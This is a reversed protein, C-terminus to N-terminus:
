VAVASHEQSLYTCSYLNSDNSVFDGVDTRKLTTKLSIYLNEVVKAIPMKIYEPDGISLTINSGKAHEYYQQLVKSPLMYTKVSDPRYMNAKHGIWFLSRAFLSRGLKKFANELHKEASKYSAKSVKLTVEDILSDGTIEGSLLDFEDPEIAVATGQELAELYRKKRDESRFPAISIWDMLDQNSLGKAERDAFVHGLIWVDIDLLNTAVNNLVFNAWKVYLYTDKAIENPELIFEDSWRTSRLIKSQHVTVGLEAFRDTRTWDIADFIWESDKAQQKAIVKFWADIFTVDTNKSFDYNLQSVLLSKIQAVKQSKDDQSLQIIQRILFYANNVKRSPVGNALAKRFTIKGFEFKMEKEAM